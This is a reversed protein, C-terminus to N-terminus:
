VTSNRFAHAWRGAKSKQKATRQTQSDDNAWLVNEYPFCKQM